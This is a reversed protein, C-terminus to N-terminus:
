DYFRILEISFCLSKNDISWYINTFVFRSLFFCHIVVFYHVFLPSKYIFLSIVFWIHCVAVIMFILHTTPVWYEIMINTNESILELKRIDNYGSCPCWYINRSLCWFVFMVRSLSSCIDLGHIPHLFFYCRIVSLYILNKSM